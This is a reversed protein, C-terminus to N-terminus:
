IRQIVVGDSFHCYPSFFFDSALNQASLCQGFNDSLFIELLHHELIIRFINKLFITLKKTQDLWIFFLKKFVHSSTVVFRIFNNKFFARNNVLKNYNQLASNLLESTCIEKSLGSLVPTILVQVQFSVFINNEIFLVFELVVNNDFCLTNQYFNWQVTYSVRANWPLLFSM